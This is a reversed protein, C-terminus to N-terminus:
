IVPAVKTISPPSVIFLPCPAQDYSNNRDVVERGGFCLLVKGRGAFNRARPVYQDEPYLIKCQICQKYWRVSSLIKFLARKCVLRGCSLGSHYRYRWYSKAFYQECRQIGKGCLQITHKHEFFASLITVRRTRDM